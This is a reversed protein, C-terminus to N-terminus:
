RAEIILPPEPIIPTNKDEVVQQKVVQEEVTQSTVVPAPMLAHAAETALNARVNEAIVKDIDRATIMSMLLKNETRLETMSSNVITHIEDSKAIVVDQKKDSSISRVAAVVAAIGTALSTIILVWGQAETIDM